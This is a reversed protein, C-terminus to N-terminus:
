EDPEEQSMSLVQRLRSHARWLLARVTGDALKLVEGTEATSLGLIDRLALVQRERLSLQGIASLLASDLWSEPDHYAGELSPTGALRRTWARDEDHFSNIAVRAVWRVPAPHRVVARDWQAYARAFGEQTADEAAARDGRTVALLARFVDAQHEKFFSAFAEPDSCGPSPRGPQGPKM